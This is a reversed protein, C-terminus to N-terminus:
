ARPSRIPAPLQLHPPAPHQSVHSTTGPNPIPIRHVRSTATHSTSRHSSSRRGAVVGGMSTYQGAESIPVYYWTNPLMPGASVWVFTEHVGSYTVGPTRLASTRATRTTTKKATSGTTAASSQGSIIADYKLVQAGTMNGALSPHFPPPLSSPRGHRSPAKRRTTM